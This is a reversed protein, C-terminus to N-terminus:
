LHLVGKLFIDVALKAIDAAGLPGKPDFWTHTWNIMGFYIMTAARRERPKKALLPSLDAVMADVADVLARQEVIITKRRHAPLKDLDNLLVKHRSSANVYLAMFGQTLRSLREKPDAEEDRVGEAVRGLATVHGDMVEFLIDEKSSFYHYLLSKSMGCAEALDAISSGLFGFQGYLEAAKAVIADRRDDYDAAQTRAL